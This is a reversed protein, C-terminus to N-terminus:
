KSKLQDLLEDVSINSFDYDSLDTKESVLKKLINNYKTSGIIIAGIIISDKIFLRKYSKNDAPDDVLTLTTNSEDISGVSFITLNFANMLTVPLLGIYSTDKGMINYGSTKGQEIAITWLGGVRGCYEAIDGAAYVNDLSTQMHDNVIVGMNTQISTNEYLKKNPRIGVSYIVMDCAISQKM